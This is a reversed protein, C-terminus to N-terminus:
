LSGSKIGTGGFWNTSDGRCLLLVAREKYSRAKEVSKRVDGKRAGVKKEGRKWQIEGGLHKGNRTATKRVGREGGHGLTKGRGTIYIQSTPHKEWQGQNQDTPKTKEGMWWETVIKKRVGNGNKNRQCPCFEKNKIGKRSGGGGGTGRTKRLCL